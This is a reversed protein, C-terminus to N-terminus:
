YARYGDKTRGKVKLEYKSGAREIEARVTVEDDYYCLVIFSFKAKKHKIYIPKTDTPLYELYIISSVKKLADRIKDRKLHIDHRKEESAVLLVTFQILKRIKPLETAKYLILEAM